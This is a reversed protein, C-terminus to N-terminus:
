TGNYEYNEIIELQKGIVLQGRDLMRCVASTREGVSLRLYELVIKDHQKKDNTKM